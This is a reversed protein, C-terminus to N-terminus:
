LYSASRHSIILFIVINTKKKTETETANLDCVKCIRDEVTEERYSNTGLPPLHM